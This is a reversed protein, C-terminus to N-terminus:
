LLESVVELIQAENLNRMFIKIRAERCSRSGRAQASM